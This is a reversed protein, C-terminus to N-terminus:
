RNIYVVVNDMTAADLPTPFGSGFDGDPGASLLYPEAVGEFYLYPRGKKEVLQGPFTAWQFFALGGVPVPLKQFPDAVAPVPPLLDGVLPNGAGNSLLSDGISVYGEGQQSLYPGRWGRATDPSWTELPHGTGALPNEFLQAFNAPSYFWLAAQAGPIPMGAVTTPVPVSGGPVAALAFPGTRPLFGTDQKFRLIAKKIELIESQAVHGQAHQETDGFAVIIAGGLVALILIVLLMEFLTFGSRQTSM